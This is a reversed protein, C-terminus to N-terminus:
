GGEGKGGGGEDRIQVNDRAPAPAEPPIHPGRVGQRACDSRWFGPPSLGSAPGRAPGRREAGLGRPLMPRAHPDTQPSRGELARREPHAGGRRRRAAPDPASPLRAIPDHGHCTM